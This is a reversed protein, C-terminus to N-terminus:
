TNRINCFIYVIIDVPLIQNVVRRATRLGLAINLAENEKGPFDHFFQPDHFKMFILNILFFIPLIKYAYFHIWFRRYFFTFNFGLFVKSLVHLSFAIEFNILKLKQLKLLELSYLVKDEIYKCKITIQTREFKCHVEHPHTVM